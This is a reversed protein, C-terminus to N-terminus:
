SYLKRTKKETLKFSCLSLTRHLTSFKGGTITYEMVTSVYQKTGGDKRTVKTKHLVDCYSYDFMEYSGTVLIQIKFNPKYM